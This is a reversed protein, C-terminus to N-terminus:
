IAPQRECKPLLARAAVKGALCLYIPPARFAGGMNMGGASLRNQGGDRRHSTPGLWLGAIIMQLWPAMVTSGRFHAYPAPRAPILRKQGFKVAHDLGRNSCFYRGTNGYHSLCNELSPLLCVLVVQYYEIDNREM